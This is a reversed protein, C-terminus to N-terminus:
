FVRIASREIAERLMPHLGSRTVVDADVSLETEIFLKVGVLDFLSFKRGEDLDILVDLDSDPGATGDATSGFLHLAIVGMHRFEHARAGLQDIAESRLM